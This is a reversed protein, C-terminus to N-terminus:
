PTDFATSCARVSNAAVSHGELLTANTIHTSPLLYCLVTVFGLQSVWSYATVDFKETRTLINTLVSVTYTILIVQALSLQASCHRCPAPVPPWRRAPTCPDKLRRHAQRREVPAAVFKRAAALCCNAQEGAQTGKQQKGGLGSGWSLDVVLM